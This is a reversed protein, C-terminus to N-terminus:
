SYYINVSLINYRVFVICMCYSYIRSITVVVSTCRFELKSIAIMEFNVATNAERFVLAYSDHCCGKVM